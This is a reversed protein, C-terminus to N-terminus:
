GSIESVLNKVNDTINGNFVATGAVIVDTGAEYAKRINEQKVGGDIEIEYTYSNAERIDALEKVKNLEGELMTQGGFGPHVTMVLITDAYKLYKKISAVSTEPNIVIGAKKGYDQIKLLTSKLDSCAEYHVLIADAGCEAFNKIYREPKEIMLHVDFFLDTEQRISTIVPMGFSISPVFMGDMVDVHIMSVGAAEIEKINEGLRNFDAALISPALKSM